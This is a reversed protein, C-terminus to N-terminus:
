RPTRDNRQARALVRRLEERVVIRDDFAVGAGGARRSLRPIAGRGLVLVVDRASARELLQRIAARRDPVTEVVAARASRAGDILPALMQDRSRGFSSGETLVVRDALSAATAGIPASLGPWRHGSVSVLAHVSADGRGRAVAVATEIVASVADPTHAFDVIVDFPQGEDIQEFRGPVGATREVTRLIVDIALGLSRAAAIAGAVNAANHAGPLRTRVSFTGDPTDLEIRGSGLTWGCRRLRFQADAARGYGVATGGRARVQHAIGAADDDLNLVALPTAADGHFFLRRKCEAYAAITAHRNLHDASINTLVAAEPVLASCGELQFSSVECVILEAPEFAVASLPPGFQWNGALVANLGAERAIACLLACVTSKGNTGTVAVLPAGSLRWGLELEDLVPLGLRQAQRIVPADFPIGPSKVVTCHRLVGELPPAAGLWTKIGQARLEAAVGRISSATSKDWAYLEGAAVSRRLASLAATGARGLGAVLFPPPPLSPRSIPPLM